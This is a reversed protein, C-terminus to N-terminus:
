ALENDLSQTLYFQPDFYTSELQILEEDPTEEIDGLDNWKLTVFENGDEEINM